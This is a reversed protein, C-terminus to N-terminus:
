RSISIILYSYYFVLFIFIIISCNENRRAQNFASIVSRVAKSSCKKCCIHKTYLGLFSSDDSTPCSRSQECLFDNEWDLCQIAHHSDHNSVKLANSDGGSTCHKTLDLIESDFETTLVSSDLDNMSVCQDLHCISNDGCDSGPLMPSFAFKNELILKKDILDFKIFL